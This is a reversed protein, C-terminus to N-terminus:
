MADAIRHTFRVIANNYLNAACGFALADDLSNGCLLDYVVWQGVEKATEGEFQSATVKGLLYFLFDDDRGPNWGNLDHCEMQFVDFRTYLSGDSLMSLEPYLLRLEGFDQSGYDPVRDSQDNLLELRLDATRAWVEAVRTYAYQIARASDDRWTAELEKVQSFLEESIPEFGPEYTVQYLATYIYSASELGFQIVPRPPLLTPDLPECLIM